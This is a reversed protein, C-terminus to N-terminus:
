GFRVNERPRTRFSLEELRGFQARVSDSYLGIGRAKHLAITAVGIAIDILMVVILATRVQCWLDLCDSAQECLQRIIM